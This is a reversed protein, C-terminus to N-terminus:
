PMGTTPVPCLHKVLFASSAPCIDAFERTARVADPARLRDASVYGHHRFFGEATTTLVFISRVGRARAYAEAKEVLAAGLGARQHEPAVALSRLLADAGCLELGVLGVPANAPGCYFFHEMHSATLDASSLAASGLLRAAGELSPQLEIAHTSM